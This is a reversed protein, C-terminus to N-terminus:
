KTPQVCVSWPKHERTSAISNSETRMSSTHSWIVPCSKLQMATHCAYFFLRTTNSIEINSRNPIPSFFNRRYYTRTHKMFSNATFSTMMTHQIHAVNNCFDTTAMSKAHLWRFICRSVVFCVYLYNRHSQARTMRVGPTIWIWVSQVSFQYPSLDNGIKM